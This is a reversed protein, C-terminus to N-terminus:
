QLNREEGYFEGSERSTAKLMFNIHRCMPRDNENAVKKLKEYIEVPIGLTMHTKKGKKTEKTKSM